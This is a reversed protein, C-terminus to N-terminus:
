AWYIRESRLENPNEPERTPQRSQASFTNTTPSSRDQEPHNNERQSWAENDDEADGAHADETLDALFINQDHLKSQLTAWHAKLWDSSKSDLHAVVTIGEAQTQLSLSITTKEDPRIEAILSSQHVQRLNIVQERILNRVNDLRAQLDQAHSAPVPPSLSDPATHNQRSTNGTLDSAASVSGIADQLGLKPPANLASTTRDIPLDPIVMGESRGSLSSSPATETKSVMSLSVEQTGSKQPAFAIGSRAAQKVYHLNGDKESGQTSNNLTKHREPRGDHARALLEQRALREPDASTATETTYASSQSPAKDSASPSTEAQALPVSALPESRKPLRHETQPEPSPKEALGHRRSTVTPTGQTPLPTESLEANHKSPSGNTQPPKKSSALLSPDYSDPLPTQRSSPSHPALFQEAFVSAFPDQGQEHSEHSLQDRSRSSKSGLDRRPAFEPTPPSKSPNPTM